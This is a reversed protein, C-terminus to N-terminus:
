KYIVAPMRRLRLCVLSTGFLLLLYECKFYLLLFQININVYYYYTIPKSHDNGEDKLKLALVRKINVNEFPRLGCQISEVKYM